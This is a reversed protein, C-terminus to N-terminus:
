CEVNLMRGSISMMMFLPTYPPQVRLLPAYTGANPEARLLEEYAWVNSHRFFRLIRFGSGILPSPNVRVLLLWWLGSM